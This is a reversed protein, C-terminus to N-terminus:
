AWARWLNEPLPQGLHLRVHMPADGDHDVYTVPGLYTFRQHSDYQVFLHLTRQEAIHGIIRRGKLSEVTTSAQSDWAFQERSTFGDAYRHEVKKQHGKRLTVMLVTQPSGAVDIDRHGVKWSPNNQSGFAAAIADRDYQGYLTLGIPEHVVGVVRAIPEVRMAESVRTPPYSANWSHLEWGVSTHHPVKMVAFAADPGDHGVMLFAKGEVENASAGRDWECLVLDGDEIPSAGGSMSDGQARVVFHKKPDIARDAVIAIDRSVEGQQQAEELPGCAVAVDAFYPVRPFPIVNSADVIEETVADRELHWGDDLQLLKARHRVGPQGTAPGFMRRLVGPLVNATSQERTATNVAIKKFDLTYHEGDITVTTRGSPIDARRSRDFRLIPRYNSHSIQLVIPALDAGGDDRKLLRDRHQALRLVVMEETMNEFADRDEPAVEWTPTFFGNELQFWRRTTSEGRAWVELPMERWKRVLATSFTAREEDERMERALLLDDRISDFASRANEEDGMGRFLADADLLARLALMKYSKVMRTSLLDRFWDAHRSLVRAEEDTLDGQVQVFHFWSEHHKRVPEFGISKAFLEAASPRRGHADRFAVYEHVAMDDSSARVLTRLLDIAELEIEVSCGAPLELTHNQIKDLAVLPPLEQGLLFVLSQPKVLFSRHNGIFDIVVLERKGNANRLGRGLQQLFIVPSATPRLMLVTNIEPVDLGENFVDVACVIELTGAKLGRLSQARPASSAESHVAVARRDHRSFFEAMFNAHAVSTCFCLTRRTGDTARRDYENLAQQARAETAVAETLATPDFRGSRWPIPAFDVDDKVGFYRFPVLLRHAIGHVLDRRFILNDGCLELLNRGDLREPTATLGLLFRPDFHGLVKRYTAAAAHHFEDIVVYDFHKPRFRSLHGTRSLTQVSAFLLDADLDRAGGGYTGVNKGPFVRQWTDKAQDLIEERHALFLAREGGMAKFDFASLFTKGLGTALVVLGRTKGEQRANRLAALAARQLENPEPPTARPEPAPASREPVRLEYADVLARTLPKTRSDDILSQFRRCIDGFAKPDDSSVLRLNWEVAATLATASLNSSGVYAVGANGQFFIYAKPHFPRSGTVEHFYPRFGAYEDALRLLMRLADPSSIGLYDGAILRVLTGRTLADRLDGQIVDVGSTQVFASVIDARAADALATRLTIGFHQEEGPVFAPLSAFPAPRLSDTALEYKQKGPIVGRVGGRPDDMDGSFRPIVHVHLHMVTQGAAEGANFGVNYGDPHLEADLARKVEDVLQMLAHQEERTADFWTAVVRKPIVLTHGRSVPYRDRICFALENSATWERPDIDLFPSRATM